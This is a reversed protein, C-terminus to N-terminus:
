SNLIKRVLESITKGDAKGALKKTAAGMVKGMDKPGQAGLEKIISSIEDSLETESLQKPLYRSIVELEDREIKALDEREQNIYIELSEKRQKVAKTLLQMETAVDIGSGTGKETEALLILSKIGRLARLEDKKQALMAKKIDVDIQEKLSM